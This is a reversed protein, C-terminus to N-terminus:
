AAAATEYIAIWSQNLVAAAMAFIYGKTLYLDLPSGASDLGKEIKQLSELDLVGFAEVGFIVCPYVDANSGSTSIDTGAAGGADPYVL